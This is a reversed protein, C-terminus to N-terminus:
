RRTVERREKRIKGTREGRQQNRPLEDFEDLTPHVALDPPEGFAIDVFVPRRRLKGRDHLRRHPPPPLELPVVGRRGHEGFNRCGGHDNEAREIGGHSRHLRVLEHLRHREAAELPDLAAPVDDHFFHGFDDVRKEQVEKSLLEAGGPRNAQPSIPYAPRDCARESLNARTRGPDRRASRGIRPPIPEGRLWVERTSIFVFFAALGAARRESRAAVAAGSVVGSAGIAVGAGPPSSAAASAAVMSTVNASRPRVAGISLARDSAPYWRGVGIWACATGSASLPRSMMPNAIVPVPLVAAKTIGIMSRRSPPGFRVRANIRVGVRSSHTCTSSLKRLYPLCKPSPTIGTYPPTPYSGCTFASRSPTSTTTAVGPRRSSWRSFCFTTSSSISTRTSSSASRMSSMPNAGWILRM